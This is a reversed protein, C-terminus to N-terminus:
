KRQILVCSSKGRREVLITIQYLDYFYQAIENWIRQVVQCQVFFHIPMEKMLGCYYCKNDEVVKMYMLCNKLLVANHLIRYQFSRYKCVQTVKNINVFARQMEDDQWNRNTITNLFNKVKDVASRGSMLKDYVMKPWKAHGIMQTFLKEDSAKGYKRYM